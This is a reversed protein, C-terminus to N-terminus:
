QLTLMINFIKLHYWVIQEPINYGEVRGNYRELIKSTSDLKGKSVLWWPSEPIILFIMITVGIM